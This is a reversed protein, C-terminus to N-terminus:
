DEKANTVIPPTPAVSEDVSFTIFKLQGKGDCSLFETRLLEWGEKPSYGETSRKVQYDTFVDNPSLESNPNFIIHIPEPKIMKTELQALRATYRAM